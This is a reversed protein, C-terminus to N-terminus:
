VESLEIFLVSTEIENNILGDIGALPGSVNVYEDSALAIKM